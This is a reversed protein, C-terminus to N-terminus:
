DKIEEIKVTSGDECYFTTGSGYNAYIHAGIKCCKDSIFLTRTLSSENKKRVAVLFRPGRFDKIDNTKDDEFEKMEEKFTKILDEVQVTESTSLKLSIEKPNALLVTFQEDSIWGLLRGEYIMEKDKADISNQTVLVSKTTM